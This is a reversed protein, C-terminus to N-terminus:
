NKFISIPFPTFDLRELITEARMDATPVIVGAPRSYNDFRRATAESLIDSWQSSTIASPKGDLMGTKKVVNSLYDWFVHGLEHAISNEENTGKIGWTNLAKASDGTSNIYCYYTPSYNLETKSNSYSPPAPEIIVTVGDAEMKIVLESLKPNRRLTKLAAALKPETATIM